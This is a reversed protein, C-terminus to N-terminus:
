CHMDGDPPSSSCPHLRILGRWLRRFARVGGTGSGVAPCRARVDDDTSRAETAWAPTVVVMQIDVSIAPYAANDARGTLERAIVPYPGVKDDVTKTVTWKIKPANAPVRGLVEREFDEVIEPRRQKWWMEPSNVAQGNKLKCSRRTTPFHTRPRSTTTPTIRLRKTAAPGPRLAKIGLQEMMNRHDEAATWNKAAPATQSAGPVAWFLAACALVLVNWASSNRISLTM